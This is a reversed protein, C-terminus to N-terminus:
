FKKLKNRSEEQEKKKEELEARRAAKMAAAHGEAFFYDLSTIKRSGLADLNAETVIGAITGVQARSLARSIALQSEFVSRNSVRDVSVTLAITIGDKPLKWLKQSRTISLGGTDKTDVIVKPPLKQYKKDFVTTLESSLNEPVSNRLISGDLISLQAILGDDSFIAEFYYEDMKFVLIDKVWYSESTGPARLVSSVDCFAGSGRIYAMCDHVLFKNQIEERTTSTTIGFVGAQESSSANNCFGFLGISILAWSYFGQRNIKM